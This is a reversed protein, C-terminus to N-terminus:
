PTAQTTANGSQGRLDDILQRVYQANQDSSRQRWQEACPGDALCEFFPTADLARAPAEVEALLRPLEAIGTDTLPVRHGVIRHHECGQSNGATNVVIWGDDDPDTPRDWSFSCTPKLPVVDEDEDPLEIGGFAPAYDFIAEWSKVRGRADLDFDGFPAVWGRSELM